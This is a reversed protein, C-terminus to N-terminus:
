RLGVYRHEDDNAPYIQNHNSYLPPKKAAPVKNDVEAPM